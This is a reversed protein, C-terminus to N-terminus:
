LHKKQDLKQYQLQLNNSLLFFFFYIVLIYKYRTGLSILHMEPINDYELKNLFNFETDKHLTTM